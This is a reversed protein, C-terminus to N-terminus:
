LAARRKCARGSAGWRGPRACESSGRPLDRHVHFTGAGDLTGTVWADRRVASADTYQLDGGARLDGGIRNDAGVLELRGVGAVTLAGGVDLTGVSTLLGNVSIPAGSDSSEGDERSDFSDTALRSVAGHIDECSCIAATFTGEAIRDM